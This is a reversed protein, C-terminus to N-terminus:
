LMVFIFTLLVLFYFPSLIKFQTSFFLALFICFSNLHKCLRPNFNLMNKCCLILICINFIICPNHTTPNHPMIINFHSFYAFQAAKRAKNEGLLLTSKGEKNNDKNGELIMCYTCLVYLQYLM